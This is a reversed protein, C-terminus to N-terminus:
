YKLTLNIWDVTGTISSTDLWVHSGAPITPNDFSTILDGTTAQNTVHGGSLVETGGASHDPGFKLSWTVSPGTGQVIAMIQSITIADFAYFLPAHESGTPNEITIAAKPDFAVLLGGASVKLRGFQDIVRM